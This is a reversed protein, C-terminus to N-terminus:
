TLPVSGRLPNYAIQPLSRTIVVGPADSTNNHLEEMFFRVGEAVPILKIGASAFLKRLDDSIMGYDWPGWNIAVVRATWKHNLSIALKNLVENAACYDVQGINGFRSAISSFFIVFKLTDPRLKEALVMAPIVKTNFVRSFSEYTKEKILKDEIIGAGHVIGDIKGLRTYIDDLLGSFMKEDQVDLPHYEVRAGTEKMAALNSRILRDKVLRQVNQEVTVPTTKLDKQRLEQIFYERLQEVNSLDLTQPSEEMPVPTRGTLILRPKYKAALSKAIEATIGYAGGTFLIVSQSDFPLHTDNTNKLAEEKLDICWRGQQNLGVEVRDDLAAIEQCIKGALLKTDMKLDLDICKVRVKPWEMAVAKVLGVSAAENISFPDKRGLGFQGGMYSLSVLLGSGSCAGAKLEAEFTKILRFLKETDDPSSGDYGPHNKTSARALSMFNVIGGIIEGSQTVLTHLKQLSEVSSLDVEFRNGPLARTINGPIIQRVQYNRAALAECFANNLEQLEGICLIIHGEPFHAVQQTVTLPISEPKLIFRKVPEATLTDKGGEAGAQPVDPITTGAGQATADTSMPKRNNDYWEVITRLTRREALASLFGDDSQMQPLIGNSRFASVIEILKISDIGLDAELNLDIGLMELPYGTRESVLQLLSVQFEETTPIKKLVDPGKAPLTQTRIVKQTKTDSPVSPPVSMNKIPLQVPLKPLVPAPPVGQLVVGPKTIREQPEITNALGASQSIGPKGLHAALLQEQLSILREIIRQQEGQIELLRTITAQCQVIFPDTVAKDSIQPHQHISPNSIDHNYKPMQTEGTKVIYNNQALGDSRTDPTKLSPKAQHWPRAKGDRIRWTAIGPNEYSRINKFLAETSIPDLRRNEFWPRLNIPLGLTSAQALLHTFQLWASRGKVELCLETHPAIGLIRNVLGTLVRGPGVEIFIRAGNEYIRRIQKEFQVPERTHRLLMARIDEPSEPYLNATVNSYVEYKPKRFKIKDLEASLKISVETMLDTHYPATVPIRIAIFGKEKLANVAKEVIAISGALVTQDPANLNALSVSIGLEKLAVATEEANAQVAAMTGAIGMGEVLKGRIATIYIVDQHSLVEAACLAVYEGLSHGAMFRADIGYTRLLDLAILDVVTMAPQAIRCDNLEAQQKERESDSFVPIPYVYKSLPQHYFDMLLKDSLEFKSRSQPISLVLDRLMNIKQSGLGPFLFCVKGIDNNAGESYYIGKSRASPKELPITEMAIKLKEKLDTVSTAAIGLRCCQKSDTCRIGEEDLFVSYALQALDTIETNGLEISMHNIAAKIEDRSTRAWCFVEAERPSLDLYSPDSAAATYEELVTHFNTGGFGFASVGARRPTNNCNAFWPRSETNIYFPSERFNFQANPTRVGITPPLIGQKLSLITKVLGAMGAACKCHAIMSKISGIACYQHTSGSNKFVETLSEIEVKDGLVTGAGHAEILEVTSPSLGADEYARSLASVIGGQYPAVLSRNQGDSSSGIGKIVAYIHDGDREADNLRKLVLAATGEGLITGDADNDFPRCQGQASLAMTKSFAIYTFPSHAADSAGAIAIDCKRAKLQTMAVDLAALSSACAADVIFNSGGLNLRNAIRGTVVNPLLGSFTDGTWKPLTSYLSDLVKQREEVAVTEVTQLQKLLMTRFTYVIALEQLQSLGFIVSTRDRSFERKEYGADKLAQSCVELALLAIPEINAMSVPPIGYKTPDFQVDKIFAGTKCYTKDPTEPNPDFYDAVKLREDSIERIANVRNVINQWYEKLNSAEPFICSMGIVAIDEEGGVRTEEEIPYGALSDLYEKSEASIEAHLAAISLVTSRLSAVQGMMFLGENRQIKQSVKLLEERNDTTATKSIHAIGKAAIRLRGLNFTELELRIVDSKRGAKILNQKRANFADTVPSMACRVAYGPGSSLLTTSKCLIAQAQYEPTIAGTTVAEETFLYATGMLVGIKMGRATLPAALMTVMAASLRDHIGGAFLIHFSEPNNVNAELLNHIALEWLVFSTMPGVHGGCESGELIINHTGEKIFIELLTPTPVHLYTIIGKSEFEAAQGPHGGALIAFPPCLQFIVEIQAKRLEQPAFALIGVGWSLGGMKAKAETLLIRLEDPRMLGVSFFPLGGNHAVAEGFPVVDSVRAMPGQVIPYATRHDRALPSDKALAQNQQANKLSDVMVQRIAKIILGVTRFKKALRLAFAIDQGMPIIPADDNSLLYSTLEEVWKSGKALSLELNRLKVQGSRSFFRFWEAEQGICTTESGDLREWVKRETLSFPSEYTLWLQECLVVGAAGAVKAAAATHLGIGGQIWYPVTLKQHLCQSLVFSSEEGVRGGAEYGKVIVGDYGAAQASQAAAFCGVEVLVKHALHRSKELELAVNEDQLNIGGLILVPVPRNIIEALKSLSRSNQGLTDWRIGWNDKKGALRSLHSLATGLVAKSNGYGFDLIGLEDAQSAAIAIQPDCVHAPTIAIITKEKSKAQTIDIM